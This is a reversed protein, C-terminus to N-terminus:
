KESASRMQRRWVGRSGFGLRRQANETPAPASSRWSENLRRPTSSTPARWSAATLDRAAALPRRGALKPPAAPLTPSWTRPPTPTPTTLPSPLRLSGRRATYRQERDADTNDRAWALDALSEPALRLHQPDHTGVNYPKLCLIPVLHRERIKVYCPRPMQLGQDFKLQEGTLRHPAAPFLPVHEMQVHYEKPHYDELKKGDLSSTVLVYAHDGQVELLLVPHNFIGKEIGDLECPYTKCIELSPLNFMGGTELSPLSSSSTSWTPSYRRKYRRSFSDSSSTSWTRSSSM